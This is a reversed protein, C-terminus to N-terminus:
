EGGLSNWIQGIEQGVEEFRAVVEDKRSYIDSGRSYYEAAKVRVQRYVGSLTGDDSVGFLLVVCIAFTLSFATAFSWRADETPRPLVRAALASIRDAIRRRLPLGGEPMISLLRKVLGEPAEIDEYTHVSHCAAVALVVDTLLLSCEDCSSAHLEFREYTGAPVYGDLFETILERFRDCGLRAHLDPISVLADELSCPLATDEDARCEIIASKVEDLLGRCGRCALAHARFDDAEPKALLGDIYNSLEDEFRTCDM